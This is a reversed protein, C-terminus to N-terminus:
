PVATIVLRNSTVRGDALHAVTVYEGAPLQTIYGNQLWVYTGFQENQGSKVGTRMVTQEVLDGTGSATVEAIWVRPVGAELRAIAVDRSGEVSPDYSQRRVTGGLFFEDTDFTFTQGNFFLRYQCPPIGEFTLPFTEFQQRADGLTCPQTPTASAPAVGAALSLALAVVTLRFRM